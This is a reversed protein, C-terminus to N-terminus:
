LFRWTSTLSIDVAAIGKRCPQLAETELTVYCYVNSPPPGIFQSGLLLLGPSLNQQSPWSYNHASLFLMPEDTQYFPMLGPSYM